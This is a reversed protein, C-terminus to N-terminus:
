KVKHGQGTVVHTGVPANVFSAVADPTDNLDPVVPFTPSVGARLMQQISTWPAAANPSPAPYNPM